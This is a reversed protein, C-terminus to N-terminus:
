EDQGPVEQPSAPKPSFLRAPQVPEFDSERSVDPPLFAADLHTLFHFGGPGCRDHLTRLIDHCKAPSDNPGSVFYPKGDKGFVYEEACADASIDGFILSAVQYDGHPSLGLNSAYQVAGEVLKRACEPQTAILTAQGTMPGYLDQDYRLRPVFHLFVDKVGLCYIDVLFCAFVVAGNGLDRSILVNGIGFEWLEEAVCCHLIRAGSAQKVRSSLSRPERRALERRAAQQKARNRELKRQRRRPDVPM